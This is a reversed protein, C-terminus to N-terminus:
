WLWRKRNELNGKELDEGDLRLLCSLQESMNPNKTKLSRVM